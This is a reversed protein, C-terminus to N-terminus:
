NEEKEKEKEPTESEPSEPKETAAESTEAAEPQEPTDAAESDTEPPAVQEVEKTVKPKVPEKEVPKAPESETAAPAPIKKADAAEAPESAAVEAPRRRVASRKRQLLEKKDVAYTLHRLVRDNLRFEQDLIQPINLHSNARFEIEVYFGYTKNQIPYALRRKGWKDIKEIIGGYDEILQQVRSTITDVEEPNQSIDVIFITSYLQEM